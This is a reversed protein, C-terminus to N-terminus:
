KKIDKTYTTDQSFEVMVARETLIPLHGPPVLYSEGAKILKESGDQMKILMSGSELYGFHTAPCWQPCGPLKPAISQRWDFGADIIIRATQKGDPLKSLWMQAQQGAPGFTKDPAQVDDCPPCVHVEAKLFKASPLTAGAMVPFVENVFVKGNGPGHEGDIFSQFEEVSMPVKTEWICIAPGEVACPEFTHNHMGMANWNATMQAMKEPPMSSMMEWFPAAQDPKFTHYVWFFSGSTPAPPEEPEPKPADATGATASPLKSAPLLAGPMVTHVTNVFVGEGPGDPGDIFAQFAQQTMEPSAEWLCHIKGTASSPLFAHNHLGMSSWKASMAARDADSLSSLFAWWSEAKGDVFEHVVAYFTSAPAAPPPPPLDVGLLKFLAGFGVDSLDGVKNWMAEIQPTVDSGPVERTAGHYTGSAIKTGDKSLTYTGVEVPFNLPGNKVLEPVQALAVPPFPGMAALDGQMAGICQQTLVTYTGDANKEVGFCKSTWNPFASQMPKIMGLMAEIPMPPAGPPNFMAGETCYKASEGTFYGAQFNDILQTIAKAERPSISGDKSNKRGFLSGFLGSKKRTSEQARHSM